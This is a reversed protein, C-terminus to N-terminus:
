CNCGPVYTEGEPNDIQITAITYGNEICYYYHASSGYHAKLRRSISRIGYSKSPVDTDEHILSHVYALDINTGSNKVQFCIGRGTQRCYVIIENEEMINDFGHTIANEVLPQLLLKLIRINKIEEDVHYEIRMLSEPYRIKLIELYNQLHFVEKEVTTLAEGNNLSLRLLRSLSTVMLSIDNANYKKALWNISDLTNYLFHANIQSQLADLESQKKRLNILYNDNILKHIMHIMYNFSSYLVGIEGTYKNPVDIDLDGDKIDKMIDALNMIPRTFSRSLAFSALICILIALLGSIIVLRYTSRSTAYIEALPISGVLYYPTDDIQREIIFYQGSVYSHYGSLIPSDLYNAATIGYPLITHNNQSVMYVRGKNSLKIQNLIVANIQDYSYEVSVIGIVQDWDNVNFVVKSIILYYSFNEELTTIYYAGNQELTKTFWEEREDSAAPSTKDPSTFQSGDFRYIKINGQLRSGYLKPVWNKYLSDSPQGEDSPLLLDKQIDDDICLDLLISKATQILQDLNSGGQSIVNENAAIINDSMIAFMTRNMIVLFIIIITTIISSYIIFLKKQLM